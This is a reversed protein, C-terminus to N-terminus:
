TKKIVYVFVSSMSYAIQICYYEGNIVKTMVGQMEHENPNLGNFMSLTRAKEWGMDYLQDIMTTAFKNKDILCGRAGGSSTFYMHAHLISGKLQLFKEINHDSLQEVNNIEENQDITFTWDMGIDKSQDVEDTIKKVAEAIRSAVNGDNCRPLKVILQMM